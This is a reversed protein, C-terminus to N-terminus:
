KLNSYFFWVFAIVNLGFIKRLILYAFKRCILNTNPELKVGVLVEDKASLSLIM